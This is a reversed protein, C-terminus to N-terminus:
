RAAAAFAAHAIAWDRQYPYSSAMAIKLRRVSRQSVVKLFAYLRGFVRMGYAWVAILLPLARYELSLAVLVPAKRREGSVHAAPPSIGVPVDRRGRRCPASLRRPASGM